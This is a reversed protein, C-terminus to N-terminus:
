DDANESVRRKLEQLYTEMENIDAVNTSNLCAKGGKDQELEGLSVGYLVAVVRKNLARAAGIEVWVWNRMSAGPTLLAVLEDCSPLESFIKQEIDDGKEVDFVDLFTNAGTDERIRRVIQTAVWRDASGHSVFVRYSTM